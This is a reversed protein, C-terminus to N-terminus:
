NIFARGSKAGAAVTFQVTINNDNVYTIAQIDSDPFKVLSNDVVVISPFKGLNHTISWTVLPPVQLHIFTEANAKVVPVPSSGSGIVGQLNEFLILFTTGNLSYKLKINGADADDLWFMGAFIPSPETAGKHFSVLADFNTRIQLSTLPDNTLPNVNYGQSM